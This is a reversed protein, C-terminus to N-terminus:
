SFVQKNFKLYLNFYTLYNSTSYIIKNKKSKKPIMSWTVIYILYTFRNKNM